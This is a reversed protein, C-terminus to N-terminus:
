GRIRCIARACQTTPLSILEWHVAVKTLVSEDTLKGVAALRVIWEKDGIAVKALLSQDTLKEVAAVRVRHDADAYALNALVTQATLNKM